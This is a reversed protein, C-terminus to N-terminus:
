GLGAAIGAGSFVVVRPAGGPGAGTVLDARGDGNVDGVAVVAGNRLTHEFAFFDGTIRRPTLDPRISTGDFVAVRPGGGKGAAVILDSVGDGNLDGVAVRAGGRFKADAIGMFDALVKGQVPDAGPLFQAANIVQVRPGGGADAAVVVDAKGDGNFDGAAINLGGQYSGEFVQIGGAVLEAGTTGHYVRVMAREGPGTAAILDEVGDGNFDAMVVRSGSKGPPVMPKGAVAVLGGNPGPNFTYTQTGPATGNGVALVAGASSKVGVRAVSETSGNAVTFPLWTSTTAAHGGPPSVSLFHDGDPLGAVTFTGDSLVKAQVEVLNGKGFLDVQVKAATLGKEGDDMKGNSNADLFVGGTVAGPYTVGVDAKTQINNTVTVALKNAGDPTSFQTGPPAVVSVAHAGSPVNAFYYAGTADTVATQDVKGDSFQDLQVTVGPLGPRNAATDGMTIKGVIATVPRLGVDVGALPAGNVVVVSQSSGTTPLYNVPTLYSVKHAGDPVNNFAFSGDAGSVTSFEATGDGLADLSVTIGPMG